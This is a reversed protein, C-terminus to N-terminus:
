VKKHQKLLKLMTEDEVDDDADDDVNKNKPFLLAEEKEINIYVTKAASGNGDNALMILNDMQAAKMRSFKEKRWANLGEWGKGEVGDVFDKVTLLKNWHELSGVLEIAAQYESDLNVFIKRASILGNKDESSMTFMPTYDKNNNLEKFLTRTRYAGKADRMNIKKINNKKM